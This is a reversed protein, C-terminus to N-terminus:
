MVPLCLCILCSYLSIAPVPTNPTNPTSPPFTMILSGLSTVRCRKAGAGCTRRTSCSARKTVMKSRRVCVVAFSLCSLIVDHSTAGGGHRGTETMAHQSDFGRAGAALRAAFRAASRAVLPYLMFCCGDYLLAFHHGHWAGKGHEASAVLWM